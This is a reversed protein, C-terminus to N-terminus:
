SSEEKIQEIKDDKFYCVLIYIFLPISLFIIIQLFSPLIIYFKLLGLKSVTIGFIFGLIIGMVIYVYKELGNLLSEIM